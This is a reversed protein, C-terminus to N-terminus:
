SGEQQTLRLREGSSRVSYVVAHTATPAIGTRGVLDCNPRTAEETSSSEEFQRTFQSIADQSGCVIDYIGPETHGIIELTTREPKRGRDVALRNVTDIAATDISRWRYNDQSSENRRWDAVTAITHVRLVRTPRDTQTAYRCAVTALEDRGRQTPVRNATPHHSEEAAGLPGATHVLVTADVSDAAAFVSPLGELALRTRSRVVQDRDDAPFLWLQDVDPVARELAGPSELSGEVVTVRDPLKEPSLAAELALVRVDVTTPLATLLRRGLQSRGGIVLVREAGAAAPEMGVVGVVLLILVLDTGM